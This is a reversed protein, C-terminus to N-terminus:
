IGWPSKHIKPLGNFIPITVIFSEWDDQQVLSDGSHPDVDVCPPRLRSGLFQSLNGSVFEHTTSNFYCLGRIRNVTHQVLTCAEEESILSYGKNSLLFNSVKQEYWAKSVLATSLNKDTPKILVNKNFCWKVTNKSEVEFSRNNRDLNLVNSLLSNLERWGAQLIHIISEDPKGEFPKVEGKLKFPIPITYFPDIDPENERDVEHTHYGGAWSQLARDCFEIWSEKMLSKKMAIPSLYKLGASFTDVVEKPVEM